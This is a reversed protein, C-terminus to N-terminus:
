FLSKTADDRRLSSDLVRAFPGATQGVGGFVRGSGDAARAPLYHKLRMVERDQDQWKAKPNPILREFRGDSPNPTKM